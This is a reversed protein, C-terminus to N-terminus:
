NNNNNTYIISDIKNILKPAILKYTVIRVQDILVSLIFIVIIGAVWLGCLVFPKELFRELLQKFYQKIPPNIAASGHILLVALTSKAIHNIWKKNEINIKEFSIFFTFASFIVLPNNYDYMRIFYSSKLGIKSGNIFIYYASFGILFSCFIYLIFSIKTIWKPIGYIRLYRAILYLISFSLVSYGHYFGPEIAVLAPFFSFYIEYMLLGGGLCVHLRKNFQTINNLLPTLLLLGLYSVVFWNSNSIFFVDKLVLSGIVAGWVLKLISYFLCIYFLNFISKTKLSTSFWGTIIIFVNVGVISFAQVQFRMISENGGEGPTGTWAFNSHVLIVLLISFIRCLEINSQRENQMNKVQLIKYQNYWVM